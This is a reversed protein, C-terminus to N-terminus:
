VLLKFRDQPNIIETVKVGYSEDIAIIEGRAILRNNVLIDVTDGVIKDLEIISGENFSLVEKISKKTRGLEVTLEMNVDLLLGLNNNALIAADLGGRVTTLVDPKKENGTLTDEVFSDVDFDDTNDSNADLNGDIEFSGLDEKSELLADIEEQSLQGDGM